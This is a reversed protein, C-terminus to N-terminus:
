AIVSRFVPVILWLTILLLVLGSLHRLPLILIEKHVFCPTKCDPIHGAKGWSFVCVCVCSTHAAKFDACMCKPLCFSIRTQLVSPQILYSTDDCFVTDVHKEEEQFAATWWSQHPVNISSLVVAWGGALNSKRLAQTHMNTTSLQSRICPLATYFEWCAKDKPTTTLLILLANIFKDLVPSLLSLLMKLLIDDLHVCLFHVHGFM